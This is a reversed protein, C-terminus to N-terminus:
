LETLIELAKSHTIQFEEGSLTQYDASHICGHTLQITSGEYVRVDPGYPDPAHATFSENVTYFYKEETIEGNFHFPYVIDMRIEENRHELFAILRWSSVTNVTIARMEWSYARTKLM